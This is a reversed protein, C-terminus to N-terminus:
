DHIMGLHDRTVIVRLYLLRVVRVYLMFYVYGNPKGGREKFHNGLIHVAGLSSHRLQDFLEDLM